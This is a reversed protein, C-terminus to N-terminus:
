FFKFINIRIIRLTGRWKKYNWNIKYYINPEFPTLISTIFKYTLVIIFCKKYYCITNILEWTKKLLKINERKRFYLERTPIKYGLCYILCNIIKCVNQELQKAKYSGGANYHKLSHQIVLLFTTYLNRNMSLHYISILKM